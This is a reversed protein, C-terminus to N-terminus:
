RSHNFCPRVLAGCIYFLVEHASNNPSSFSVCFIASAGLGYRSDGESVLPLFPESFDRGEDGPKLDGLHGSSEGGHLARKRQNNEDDNQSHGTNEAGKGGFAEAIELGESGEEKAAHGEESYTADDEGGEGPKQSIGEGTGHLAVAPASLEEDREKAEGGHNEQGAREFVGSGALDEETGQGGGDDEVEEGVGQAPGEIWEVEFGPATEGLGEPGAVGSKCGSPHEEAVGEDGLGEEASEEEDGGGRDFGVEGLGLEELLLASLECSGAGVGRKM